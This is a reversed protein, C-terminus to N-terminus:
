GLYNEKSAVGFNVVTNLILEVANYVEFTYNKNCLHKIKLILNPKLYRQGSIAITNYAWSKYRYEFKESKIFIKFSSDIKILSFDFYMVLDYKFPTHISYEINQPKSNEILKEYQNTSQRNGM